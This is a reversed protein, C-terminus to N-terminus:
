TMRRLYNALKEYTQKGLEVAGREKTAACAAATPFVMRAMYRTGRGSQELTVTVRFWPKEFDGHDFVIRSPEQVELFWFKNPWDKGDPGHMTFKAIGGPRLDYQEYTTRFDNPGWWHVLHEVRTLAAWVLERPADFVRELVIERDSTEADPAPV